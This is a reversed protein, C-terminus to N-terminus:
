LLTKLLHYKNAENMIKMQVKRGSRLRRLQEVFLGDLGFEALRKQYNRIHM